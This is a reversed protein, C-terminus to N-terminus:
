RKKSEQEFILDELNLLKRKKLHLNLQNINKRVKKKQRDQLDEEKFDMKVIKDIKTINKDEKNQKNNKILKWKRKSM